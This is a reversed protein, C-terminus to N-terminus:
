QKPVNKISDKFQKLEDEFEKQKKRYSINRNENDIITKTATEISQSIQKLESTSQMHRPIVTNLLDMDSVNPSTNPSVHNQFSEVVKKATDNGLTELRKQNFLLYVDSHIRYSKSGDSNEKTDYLLFEFVPKQYRIANTILSKEMVYFNILCVM